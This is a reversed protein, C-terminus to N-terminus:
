ASTGTNLFHTPKSSSSIGLLFLHDTPRSSVPPPILLDNLRLLSLQLRLRLLFPLLSPDKPLPLPLPLPIPFTLSSPSSPTTLPSPSTTGSVFPTSSLASSFISTFFAQNTKIPWRNARARSQLLNNYGTKSPTTKTRSELPDNLQANTDEGM